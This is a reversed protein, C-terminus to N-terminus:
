GTPHFPTEDTYSWCNSNPNSRMRSDGSDNTSMFTSLKKMAHLSEDFYEVSHRCNWPSTSKNFLNGNRCSFQGCVLNTIEKIIELPFWAPHRTLNTNAVKCSAIRRFERLGGHEMFAKNIRVLNNISCSRPQKSNRLIKGFFSRLYYNFSFKATFGM